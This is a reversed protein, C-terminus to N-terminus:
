NRASSSDFRIAARISFFDCLAFRLNKGVFRIIFSLLHNYHGMIGGSSRIVFRIRTFKSFQILKYLGKKGGFFSDGSRIFVLKHFLVKRSKKM